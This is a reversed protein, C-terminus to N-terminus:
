AAFINGVQMRRLESSRPSNQVYALAVYPLQEAHECPQPGLATHAKNRKKTKCFTTYRYICMYTYM